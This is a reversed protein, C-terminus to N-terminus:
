VEKKTKKDLKKFFGENNPHLSLGLAEKAVDTVTDVFVIELSNKTSEPVDLLDEKNALPILVKEIGAREAAMLKEPLGGIPLVQGRLSIEGTMALKSSVKIGLVLSTIATFMTIGASPGDKPVAGSPVHIHIDKDRFDIKKEFLLSKVLNVAITASEKMVDGLQGTIVIQGTGTFATTEIFLIEGGAQTWALGTAVGPVNHKLAKEHLAKKNGLFKPM